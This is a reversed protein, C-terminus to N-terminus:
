ETQLTDTRSTEVSLAITDIKTVYGTAAIKLQYTAPAVASFTCDGHSDTTQSYAPTSFGVKTLVVGANAIGGGTGRVVRSHMPVPDDDFFPKVISSVITAAAKAQKETNNTTSVGGLTTIIGCIMLIIFKM